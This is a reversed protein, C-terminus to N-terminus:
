AHPGAVQRRWYELLDALTQEIPILTTWGTEAHIRSGDGVVIPNDSPRLRAADTRVSVRLRALGLLIDLLDKVPYARGSCVNYPRSPQGRDVLSAYARVTDRVDTIDRRADLNGVSLVPERVGAEAEAIQRAFASTVFADSQRPGAHNFPRAILVPAGTMTRATMEQALKSFGYPSSPRIPSEETLPQRSQRYVLASGVVLVPCELHAQSVAELVCLTGLVNVQLARAPNTWAAGVDAIGGCHYVASPRVAAIAEAVTERDLLDVGRWQVHAGLDRPKQGAPNSWAHVISHRELLHEILHSGAFGTGGTVLPARDM